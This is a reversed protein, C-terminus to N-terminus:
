QRRKAHYRDPLPISSMHHSKLFTWKPTLCNYCLTPTDADDGCAFSQLKDEDFEFRGGIRACNPTKRRFGGFISCKLKMRQLCRM